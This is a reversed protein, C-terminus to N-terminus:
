NKKINVQNPQEAICVPKTKIRGTTPLSATTKGEPNMVIMGSSLPTFM